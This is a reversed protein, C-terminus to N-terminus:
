CIRLAISRVLAGTITRWTTICFRQQGSDSSCGSVTRKVWDPAALPMVFHIHRVGETWPGVDAAPDQVSSLLTLAQVSASRPRRPQRHSPLSPSSTGCAAKGPASTCSVHARALSCCTKLAQKRGVQNVRAHYTRTPKDDQYVAQWFFAATCPGVSSSIDVQRRAALVAPPQRVALSRAGPCSRPRIAAAM